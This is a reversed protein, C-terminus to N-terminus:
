RKEENISEMYSVPQSGGVDQMSIDSENRSLPINPLNSSLDRSNSHGQNIEPSIGSRAEDAININNINDLNSVEGRRSPVRRTPSASRDRQSAPSERYSLMSSVEEYTPPPTRNRRREQAHRTAINANHVLDFTTQPREWFLTRFEEFYREGVKSRRGSKNGAM